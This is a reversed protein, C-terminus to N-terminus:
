NREMMAVIRDHNADAKAKLDDFEAPEGIKCNGEQAHLTFYDWLCLGWPRDLLETESFHMKSQLTVKVSQVMPVAIVGGIKSEDVSFLPFSSGAKVYATFEALADHLSFGLGPERIGLWNRPQLRRHWGAVAAPLKPNDMDALADAYTQSCIVIGHILDELGPRHGTGFANGFRNLLLVHGLSFPRLRVGLLAVPEPIAAMFFDAGM